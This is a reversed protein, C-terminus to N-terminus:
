MVTTPLISSKLSFANYSNFSTSNRPFSCQMIKVFPLFIRFCCQRNRAFFSIVSFCCQKFLSIKVCVLPYLSILMTQTCHQNRSKPHKTYSGKIKPKWLHEMGLCWCHLIESIPADAFALMAGSKPREPIVAELSKKCAWFKKTTSFLHSKRPIVGNKITQKQVITQKWVNEFKTFLMVSM